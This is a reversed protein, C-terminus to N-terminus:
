GQFNVMLQISLPSHPLVILVAVQGMETLQRYKLCNAVLQSSLISKLMEGKSSM